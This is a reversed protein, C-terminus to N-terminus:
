LNLYQGCCSTYDHTFFATSVQPKQGGQEKTHQGRVSDAQDKAMYGFGHRKHDAQPKNRGM